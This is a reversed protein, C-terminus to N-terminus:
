LPPMKHAEISNSERLAFSPRHAASPACHRQAGIAGAPLPVMLRLPVVYPPPRSNTAPSLSRAIPRFLLYLFFSLCASFIALSLFFSTESFFVVFRLLFLDFDYGYAFTRRQDCRTRPDREITHAHFLKLRRREIITRRRPGNQHTHTPARAGTDTHAHFVGCRRKNRTERQTNCVDPLICVLIYVHMPFLTVGSRERVCHSCSLLLSLFRSPCGPFFLLLRSAPSPSSTVSHQIQKRACRHLLVAEFQPARPRKKKRRM